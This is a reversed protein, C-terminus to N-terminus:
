STAGPYMSDYLQKVRIRPTDGDTDADLEKAGTAVTLQDPRLEGARLATMEAHYRLCVTITAAVPVALFAGVIGALTGGVTVSLLVIAAHLGMAKSQLMPQLVNGEVQQVLVVVGLAFLANVFGNAFLAIAVAFFGATVAGIIPIFSAFFTVVGIVFALPVGLAWLGLAILAGDVFAVIAQAQIFGSLTKWIRSGLETIHWGTHSDLYKRMWPLFKDGDKLIFFTVFLMIVFGVVISSAMSFGSVVGSAITSAQDRLFSVIDELASQVQETNIELPGEELMRFFENVGSQAQSVLKGGQNAVTPAMAAMTGSFILLFGLITTISALARPFKIGRLWAAVPYLVTSVLIALLVPLLGVWIFTLLYGILALGAVILIFALSAKALAKFDGYIVKAKRDPQEPPRSAAKSGLGAPDESVLSSSDTEQEEPKEVQSASSASSTSNHKSDDM